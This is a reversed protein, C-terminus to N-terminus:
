GLWGRTISLGTLCILLLLSRPSRQNLLLPSHLLMFYLHSITAFILDSSYSARACKKKSQSTTGARGDGNMRYFDRVVQAGLTIHIFLNYDLFSKERLLHSGLTYSHILSFLSFSLTISCWFLLGRSCKMWKWCEIERGSSDMVYIVCIFPSPSLCLSFCFCCFCHSFRNSLQPSHWRISWSVLCVTKNNRCEVLLGGHNSTTPLTSSASSNLVANVCLSLSSVNRTFFNCCFSTLIVHSFTWTTPFRVFKYRKHSCLSTPKAIHQANFSKKLDRWVRSELGKWEAM